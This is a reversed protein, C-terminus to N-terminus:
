NVELNNFDSDDDYLTELRNYSLDIFKIGPPFRPWHRMSNMRLSCTELAGPLHFVLTINNQELNLEKLNKFSLFSQEEVLEIKNESLDLNERFIYSNTQMLGTVAANQEQTQTVACDQM